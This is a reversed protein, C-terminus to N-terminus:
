VIYVWSTCMQKNLIKIKLKKTDEAHQLGVLSSINICTCRVMGYSYVGTKRFIFGRTRFM